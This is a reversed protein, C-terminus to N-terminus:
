KANGKMVLQAPLKHGALLREVPFLDGQRVLFKSLNSPRGQRKPPMPLGYPNSVGPSFYM